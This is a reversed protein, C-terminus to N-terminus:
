KRNAKEDMCTQAFGFIKNTYHDREQQQSRTWILWCDTFHRTNGQRRLRLYSSESGTQSFHLLAHQTSALRDYLSVKNSYLPMTFNMGPKDENTVIAWIWLQCGLNPSLRLRLEVSSNCLNPLPLPIFMLVISDSSQPLNQEGQLHLRLAILCSFKQTM